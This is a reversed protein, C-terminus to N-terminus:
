AKFFVASAASLSLAMLVFSSIAFLGFRLTINNVVSQVLSHVVRIAVYAWALALNLTSDAGIVALVMACAYFLTPQEFLHNYNDAKWRTQPPLTSMQQGRPAFPDLRMKEQKIAPIRTLYMWFWM